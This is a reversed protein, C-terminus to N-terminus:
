EVNTVIRVNNEEFISAGDGLISYHFLGCDPKSYSFVSIPLDTTISATLETYVRNALWTGGSIVNQSACDVVRITSPLSLTAPSNGIATVILDFALDHEFNSTFRVMNNNYISVVSTLAGISYHSLGCDPKSYTFPTILLDTTIPYSKDTYLRSTLWTGGSIVNGSSCNVIKINTSLVYTAPINGIATVILDFSM